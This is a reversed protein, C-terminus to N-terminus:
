AASTSTETLGPSGRQPELAAFEERLQAAEEESVETMLDLLLNEIRLGEPRVPRSPENAHDLPEYDFEGEGLQLAELVIERVYEELARALVEVDTVGLDILIRGLPQWVKKRRQMALAAQVTELELAGAAYLRNGLGDAGDATASVVYGDEVWMEFIRDGSRILLIGKGGSRGLLQLITHLGGTPITGSIAM